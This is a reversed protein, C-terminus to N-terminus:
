KTLFTRLLAAVHDGIVGGRDGGSAMGAGVADRQEAGGVAGAFVHDGGVRYLEAGAGPEHELVM